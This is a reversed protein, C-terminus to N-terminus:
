RAKHGHTKSTKHAAKKAGYRKKAQRECNIRKTHHHKYKKRCAALAKALLQARTAKYSKVAKCGTITVHTKQTILAGNQGTITTPATLTQGCLSSTAGLASHPGEPLTTEFSSVPADPVANFSSTTVGGKINTQGDLILTIGEGQLVFEVDPFAANGHSVLYAPGSLPSSLVPTHVTATGIVSGEPCSAPNAEFLAALCAKQLTTLRSPLQSPLTLVTKAINAQGRTSTVRVSLSAGNLKSTQGQTSVTLVPSFQLQQCGSAQFPTSVPVQAGGSGTLTGEIRMPTCNTPNFEFNPRDVNVLIRKLQLPIGKLQTPLPDSVITLSANNRDIFIKSRVIVTGLNFPGAIAPTVISLGFPAGGYPGTIYVRGGGVVFPEPGLGSSEISHGVESEPGCTGQSAQPEPCQKVSSLMGAAGPPLHLSLGSVAQDSDPRTIELAFTSFAGAKANTSQATFGPSFPQPNGSCPGGGAGSTVNFEEPPSSLSVPGTGSWPTFVADTGYNGCLPPTSVSARPGGFLEIKLEEFPVQPTNRFTTAVRLTGEDLQGEGALKVLVGSVPDEAVLYLAILSGFPNAEQAALYLAGELEHPLLPTKIHVAGVKSAEPCSPQTSTFENTQTKSNFGTFGIQAESCAELGNAASPSLEVGEPLTVTTDRVDAEALGEAELTTKQPVKVDVTLGTPTSVSHVEPSVNISPTFPLSSCGELGLLQGANNIWAYEASLFSGPSAWSDAEMSSTLPESAPNAPCSTPLTLFPERPLETSTPCEKKIQNKFAGGAVCEWGRANDHRPDGPVGWLTVQSSLLGAVETANRVSAVVGYDRGTRVSTDIVIPIKGIVEFGFRAPEGQAPVLNFVPVTKTVIGAIPENATVTAVGVVSSPLCLNTELVLAAFDVEGCQAAANPNGILGPPLNFSLDKPLAVPKRSGTQNMVLTTTLQFPHAGAQTAPTGDENAPLLEYNQIGFPAQEGSVTLQQVRSARAAGGGEVSVENPLSEVTGPPEEVKVKITAALREYPYIVGKFTCSLTAVICEEKEMGKTAGTMATAILGSPLKDSVVVATTAGNIPADGLNSIAVVISGEGGPPLHTPLAETTLHWVPTAAVASRAGGLLMAIAVMPLALLRLCFPQLHSTRRGQGSPTISRRTIM